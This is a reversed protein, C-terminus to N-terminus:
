AFAIPRRSTDFTLRPPEGGIGAGDDPYYWFDVVAWLRREMTFRRVLRVRGDHATARLVHRGPALAFRYLIWNHQGEVRFEGAVARRGDIAIEIDVPDIDFSQNSVYLRLNGDPREPLVPAATEAAPRPSAETGGGCAAAVAVLAVSVVAYRHPCM